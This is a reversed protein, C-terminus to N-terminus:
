SLLFTAFMVLWVADLFHWYRSLLRLPPGDQDPILPRARSRVLLRGLAVLGGAVHLAHLLILFFVFGLLPNGTFTAAQHGAYLQWLAPAQLCFFALAPAGAARLLARAPGPQSRRLRRWAATLLGGAGLLVVTSAWLLGPVPVVAAPALRMRTLAYGILSAAFLIALSILFLRLALTAAGGEFLGQRRSV